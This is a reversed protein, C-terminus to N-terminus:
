AAEQEEEAWLEEIIECVKARSVPTLRALAAFPFNDPEMEYIADRIDDFVSGISYGCCLVDSVSLCDACLWEEKGTADGYDGNEDLEVETYKALHEGLEITKGCEVCTHPQDANQFAETIQWATEYDGDHGQDIICACDFSM